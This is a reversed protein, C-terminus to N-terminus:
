WSACVSKHYGNDGRIISVFEPLVTFCARISFIALASNWLIMFTKLDLPKRNKMYEQGLYIFILYAAVFYLSISWNEAFWQRQEHRDYSGLLLAQWISPTTLDSGNNNNNNNNNGNM